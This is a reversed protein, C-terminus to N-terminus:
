FYLYHGYVKGSRFEITPMPFKLINFATFVAKLFKSKTPIRKLDIDFSLYFQRERNYASFEPPNDKGGLMGTAGYGVALNLWKPWWRMDVFSRLNTSLWYTQGNYDKLMQQGFGTGLLEPRLEAFETPHFSYKFRIRQDEWFLQQSLYLASGIFNATLDCASAGWAESKADLIEIVSITTFGLASGILASKKNNLGAWSMQATYISSVHYTSFSHGLKDMQLWEDCDNFWHM